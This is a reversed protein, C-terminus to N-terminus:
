IRELIYEEIIKLEQNNPVNIYGGKNLDQRYVDFITKNPNGGMYRSMMLTKCTIRLMIKLAKERYIADSLLDETNKVLVEIPKSDIVLQTDLISQYSKLLVKLENVKISVQKLKERLEYISALYKTKTENNLRIDYLTIIVGKSYFISRM